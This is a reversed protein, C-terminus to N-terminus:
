QVQALHTFRSLLFLIELLRDRVETIAPVAITHLDTGEGSVNQRSVIPGRVFLLLRVFQDLLQLLMKRIRNVM